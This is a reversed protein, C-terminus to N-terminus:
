AFKKMKKDKSKIAQIPIAKFERDWIEMLLAKKCKEMEIAKSWRTQIISIRKTFTM